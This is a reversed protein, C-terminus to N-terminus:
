ANKSGKGAQKQLGSIEVLQYNRAKRGQLYGPIYCCILHYVGHPVAIQPPCTASESIWIVMPHSLVTRVEEELPVVLILPNYLCQLRILFHSQKLHASRRGRMIALASWKMQIASVM